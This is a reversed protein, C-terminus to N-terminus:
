WYYADKDPLYDDPIDSVGIMCMNDYEGEGVYDFLYVYENKLIVDLLSIEKDIYSKVISENTPIIMWKNYKDDCDVWFVLVIKGLHNKYLSLLPGDYYILDQIFTYGNLQNKSVVGTLERMKGQKLLKKGMFCGM